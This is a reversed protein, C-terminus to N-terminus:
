APVHAAAEIVYFKVTDPAIEFKLPEDGIEHALVYACTIVMLRNGGEVRVCNLPNRITREM